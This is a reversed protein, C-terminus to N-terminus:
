EPEIRFKGTDVWANKILVWWDIALTDLVYQYPLWGYGKDGWSTGWSNRILFAGQSDNDKRRNNAIVKDDDYGVAVVAHGGEIKEKETPYPIEGTEDAQAISTFVTFGFMSPLGSALNTKISAIIEEIGVGPPDLRYFRVARYNAAFSYCFAPPEQDFNRIRYPWYEEPPVGFLRMAGMTSRLHAGTDGVAKMLNRTAKYLFLRSADLHENRARREFYEILGVGANATCSGLKGQNEIPPCWDRLDIQSPLGEAPEAADTQELQPRIEEHDRRYDRFDPLDALWGMALGRTAKSTHDIGGLSTTSVDIQESSHTSVM